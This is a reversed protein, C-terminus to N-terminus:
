IHPKDTRSRYFGREIFAVGSASGIIIVSGGKGATRALFEGFSHDTPYVFMDCMEQLDTVM